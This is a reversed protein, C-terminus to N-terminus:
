VELGVLEIREGGPGAVTLTRRGGYPEAPENWAPGLPEIGTVAAADAAFTMMATGRPLAAQANAEGVLEPPHQDVEVLSQGAFQVACFTHATDLPLDLVRNVCEMPATISGAPDQGGFTDEYFSRAAGLKPASMVAIFVREVFHTATPLDYVGPDAIETLYLMEGAPGVVQMASIDEAGPIPAPEGVVEFPTTGIRERVRHVDQVCLEISRWGPRLLPRDGAITDVELLRILGPAGVTHGVLVSRTGALGPQGWSRALGASVVTDALVQFDFAGCYAPALEGVDPAIVTACLIPGLM